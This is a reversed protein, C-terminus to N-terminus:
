IKDNETWQLCSFTSVKQIIIKKELNLFYKTPKEFEYIVKCRSRIFSGHAEKM